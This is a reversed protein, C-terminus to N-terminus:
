RARLTVWRARLRVWRARLSVWRARLMLGRARLVVWRARLTVRRFTLSDGLWSVRESAPHCAAGAAREPGGARNGVARLADGVGRDGGGGRGVEGGRGASTADRRLGSRWRGVAIVCNRITVPKARRSLFHEKFSPRMGFKRPTRARPVPYLCTSPFRRAHCSPPM